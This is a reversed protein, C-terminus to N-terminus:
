IGEDRRTKEVLRYLINMAELPTINLIDIGKIEEEIESPKKDFFSLQASDERLFEKNETKNVDLKELRTM